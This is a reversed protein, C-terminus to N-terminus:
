LHEEVFKRLQNPKGGVFAAVREGGRFLHFTPLAKVKQSMAIKKAANDTTCNLKAFKIQPIQQAMEEFHPAIIKCPGCWETYYDVLVTDNSTIFSELSDGSLIHVATKTEVQPHARRSSCTSWSLHHPSEARWPHTGVLLESAASRAVMRISTPAAIRPIAASGFAPRAMINQKALLAM